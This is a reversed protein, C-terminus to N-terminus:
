FIAFYEYAIRLKHSFDIYNIKFAKEAELFKKFLCIDGTADYIFTFNGKSVKEENGLEIYPM